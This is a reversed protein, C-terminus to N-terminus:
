EDELHKDVYQALIEQMKMPPPTGFHFCIVAHAIEHALMGDTVDEVSVTVSESQHNYFAPPAKGMMGLRRYAATVDSREKLLFISFHLNEPRMDLLTMVTEVLKDMRSRTLLPNKEPHESFLSFDRGIIRTLAALDKKDSFVITAYRTEYNWSREDTAPASAATLLVFLLALALAPGRGASPAYRPRSRPHAM